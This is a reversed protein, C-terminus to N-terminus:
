HEGLFITDRWRIMGLGTKVAKTEMNEFHATIQKLFPRKQSVRKGRRTLSKNSM